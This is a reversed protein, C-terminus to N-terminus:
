VKYKLPLLRLSMKVKRYHNLLNLRIMLKILKFKLYVSPTTLIFALFAYTPFYNRAIKVREGLVKEMNIFSAGGDMYAAVPTDIFQVKKFSKYHYFYKSMWAYDAAYRYELEYQGLEEFLRSNFFVSQHCFPISFYLKFFNVESGKLLHSSASEYLTKGYVIDPLANVSHEFTTNLVESNCYRDGANLFHLYKGKAAEIGKNMADYIGKDPESKWYNIIPEHQKIVEITRDRSGGDIVIYEYDKFSQASVSAITKELNDADNFVVTIISFFPQTKM